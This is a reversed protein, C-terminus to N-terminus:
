DYPVEGQRHVPLKDISYSDALESTFDSVRPERRLKGATEPNLYWSYIKKFPFASTPPVEIEAFAHGEAESVFPSTAAAQSALKKFATSLTDKGVVIGDPTVFTHHPNVSYLVSSITGQSDPFISIQMDNKKWTLEFKDHGSEKGLQARAKDCSDGPLIAPLHEEPSPQPSVRSLTPQKSCGSSAPLIVASLILARIISHPM